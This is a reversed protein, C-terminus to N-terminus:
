LTPKFDPKKFLQLGIVLFIGGIITTVISTWVGAMAWEGQHAFALWLTGVLSLLTLSFCVVSLLVLAIGMVIKRMYPGVPAVAHTLAGQASVRVYDLILDIIKM